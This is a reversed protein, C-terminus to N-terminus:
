KRLEWAALHPAAQVLHDIKLAMEKTAEPNSSWEPSAALMGVIRRLLASSAENGLLADVM